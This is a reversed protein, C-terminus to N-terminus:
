AAAIRKMKRCESRDAQKTRNSDRSASLEQDRESTFRAKKISANKMPSVKSMIKIRQGSPM